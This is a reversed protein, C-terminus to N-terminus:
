HFRLDDEGREELAVAFEVGADLISEAERECQDLAAGREDLLEVLGDVGRARTDAQPVELRVASDERVLLGGDSGNLLDGRALQRVDGSFGARADFQQLVVDM